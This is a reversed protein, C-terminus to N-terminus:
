QAAKRKRGSDADDKLSTSPDEAIVRESGCVECALFDFKDPGTHVYTCRPCAWSIGKGRITHHSVDDPQTNHTLSHKSPIAKLPTSSKNMKLDRIKSPIEPAVRPLSDGAVISEKEIKKRKSREPSFFSKISHNKQLKVETTCDGGQYKGDNIQKNVPYVSLSEDWFIQQTSEITSSRFNEVLELSPRMLWERAISVDHLLVPQRPHVWAYKPHADMTLITFTTITEDRRGTKVCAWLGALILPQQKDKRCVFYPQKRKDHFSQSKTWEYYGDLAVVCTQGNRILSSFSKKVYITESRANFMIYHPSASFNPDIPLAHPSNQTGTNPILGWIMPTCELDNTRNSSRRFVRFENGPGINPRDRIECPIISPIGQPNDVTTAEKSQVSKGAPFTENQEEKKLFKGHFFATAAASLASASYAARGCM